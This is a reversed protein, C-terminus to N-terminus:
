VSFHDAIFTGLPSMVCVQDGALPIICLDFRKLQRALFEASEVRPLVVATKGNTLAIIKAETRGDSLYLSGEVGAFLGAARLKALVPELADPGVAPTPGPEPAAGASAIPEGGAQAPLPQEEALLDETAQHPQAAAEHAALFVSAQAELRMAAQEEEVRREAIRRHIVAVGWGLLGVAMAAFLTIGLLNEAAWSPPEPPEPPVGSAGLCAVAALLSAQKWIGHDSNAM